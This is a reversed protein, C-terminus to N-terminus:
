ERHHSFWTASTNLHPKEDIDLLTLSANALHTAMPRGMPGAEIIKLFAM